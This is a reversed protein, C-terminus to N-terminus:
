DSLPARGNEKNEHMRNKKNRAVRCSIFGNAEVRLARLKFKSTAPLKLCLYLPVKPISYRCM